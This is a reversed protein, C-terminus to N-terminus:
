KRDIRLTVVKRPALTVRVPGGAELITVSEAQAASLPSEDLGALHVEEPVYPLQILAETQNDSPNYLRLILAEGVEAKKVSSLIANTGSIALFSREAPQNGPKAMPRNQEMGTTYCHPPNNFVLAQRWVEAQHWFGQHPLVSLSFTLKRQIQAQPTAIHPGAGVSATQM